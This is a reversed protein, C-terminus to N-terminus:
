MIMGGSLNNQPSCIMVFYFFMGLPKPMLCVQNSTRAGQSHGGQPLTLKSWSLSPTNLGGEYQHKFFLLCQDLSQTHLLQEKINAM